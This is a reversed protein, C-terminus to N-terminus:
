RRPLDRRATAPGGVRRGRGAGLLARGWAATCGPALASQPKTILDRLQTQGFVPIRRDALVLNARALSNPSRDKAAFQDEEAPCRSVHDRQGVPAWM